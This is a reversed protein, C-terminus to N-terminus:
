NVKVGPADTEGLRLVKAKRIGERVQKAVEPPLLTVICGARVIMKGIPALQGPAMILMELGNPYLAPHIDAVIELQLGFINLIGAAIQPADNEDVM